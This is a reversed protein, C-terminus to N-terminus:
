QLFHYVKEQVNAFPYNQLSATTTTFVLLLVIM